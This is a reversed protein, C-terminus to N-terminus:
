DPNQQWPSAEARDAMAEVELAWEPDTTAASTAYARLSPAANRDKLRTVFFEKETGVIGWDILGAEDLTQVAQEIENNFVTSGECLALKRLLLLAYKGRGNPNINRDMKM